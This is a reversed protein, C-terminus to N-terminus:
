LKFKHLFRGIKGVYKQWDFYQKNYGKMYIYIDYQIM